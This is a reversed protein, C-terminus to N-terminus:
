LFIIIEQFSHTRATDGSTYIGIYKWYVAEYNYGTNVVHLM